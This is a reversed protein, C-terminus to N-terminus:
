IVVAKSAVRVIWRNGGRDLAVRAQRGSEVNFPCGGVQDAVLEDRSSDARVRQCFYDGLLSSFPYAGCLNRRSLLLAMFSVSREVASTITAVDATMACIM